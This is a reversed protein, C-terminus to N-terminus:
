GEAGDEEARGALRRIQEPDTLLVRHDRFDIVGRRSLANLAASVTERTSAILCAFDSHTLRLDILLGDQRTVGFETALGLFTKALRVEVSSYLMDVLRNQIKRLRLGSLKTVRTGLAPVMEVLRDFNERRMMCLLTDELAEATVEGGDAALGGEMEGFLTSPGLIDVIFDHGDPSTRVLKISGKKVFYVSRRATGRFPLLQRKRLFLTRSDRDIVDYEEESLGSFIDLRRLYWLKEHDMGPEGWHRHEGDIM